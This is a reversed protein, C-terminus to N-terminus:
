ELCGMTDELGDWNLIVISIEPNMQLEIAKELGRRPMSIKALLYDSRAM